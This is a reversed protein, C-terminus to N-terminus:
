KQKELKKAREQLTDIIEKFDKECYKLIPLWLIASIVGVTLISFILTDTIPAISNQLIFIEIILGGLGSGIARGISDMFSAMAIMTGRHEPLNVDIISAYWNPGVGLWFGLGISLIIGMVALIAM